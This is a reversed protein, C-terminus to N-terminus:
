NQFKNLSTKNGSIQNMKIIEHTNSVCTNQPQQHTAAKSLYFKTFAISLGIFLNQM